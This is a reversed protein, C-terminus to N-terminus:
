TLGRRCANGWFQCTATFSNFKELAHHAQSTGADITIESAIMPATEPPAESMNEAAMQWPGQWTPALPQILPMTLTADNWATQDSPGTFNLITLHTFRFRCCLVAVCSIGREDPHLIDALKEACELSKVFNAQFYAGALLNHDTTWGSRTFRRQDAADVPQFLMIGAVDHHVTHRNIVASGRARTTM